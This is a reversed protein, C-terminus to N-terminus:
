KIAEVFWQTKMGEGTKWIKVQQGAEPNVASFAYYLRISHTDYNIVDGFEDKFSYRFVDGAKLLGKKVLSNDEKAGYQPDKPTFVEFANVTLIKPEVFDAGKLYESKPLKDQPIVGM